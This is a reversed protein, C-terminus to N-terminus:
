ENNEGEFDEITKNAIGKIEVLNQQLRLNISELLGSDLLKQDERDFKPISIIHDIKDIADSLKWFKKLKELGDM